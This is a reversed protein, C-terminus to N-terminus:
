GGWITANVVGTIPDGVDVGSASLELTGELYAGIEFNARDGDSDLLLYSAGETFDLLIAGPAALLVPDVLLYVAVTQGDDLEGAVLVIGYDGDEGATTGLFDVALPGESLDVDWAGSGFSWPSETYWSGWTTSFEVNLVGAEGLCPYPRLEDSLSPLGDDLEDLIDDEKDEIVERTTRLASAREDSDSHADLAEVTDSWADAWTLLPDADFHDLNDRMAAEYRSRGADTQYLRNAMAGAAVVSVPQRWGFPEDSDFTADAGWPLFVLRPDDDQSWVFFNNTNGAYGDWHGVIAEMAWFQFYGDLDVLLELAAIAGDPDGEWDGEEVVAAVAQLIAGDSAEAADNKPDFTNVWDSRFDSLTGEYLLGQDAGFWQELFMSRIDDIHAYVGLSEGNVWVESLNCRPAPLGVQAFSQYALCTRLRTADQRGNNFTLRELGYWAAGDVNRDLRLKLSPRSPDDSGILGKKRIGINTFSGTELGDGTLEVDAAFWEFPDDFPEALCEGTFMDLVNRSQYRLTEWDDPDISVDVRLIRDPDFLPATQEYLTPSEDPEDVTPQEDIAIPGCAAFLWIALLVM